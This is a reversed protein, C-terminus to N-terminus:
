QSNPTSSASDVPKDSTEPMEAGTEVTEVTTTVTETQNDIEAPVQADGPLTEEDLPTVSEELNQNEEAAAAQLKEQLESVKGGDRHSMLVALLITIVFFAGAMWITFRSLVDSTGAGFMSETMGGGFASGLGESRPRQLLVVGILLLCCLVLITTLAYIFFTMM